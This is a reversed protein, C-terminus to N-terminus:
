ETTLALLEEISESGEYAEFGEVKDRMAIFCMRDALENGEVGSHGKVHIISLSSPLEVYCEYMKKILEANALVENKGRTWNKRQWGAAWQTMAKVSYSSDSLIQVKFGEALLDKALLMAQHLANLEATNNTGKHYLGHYKARIHGSQYVIVGSAAPGPNPDCGGDCFIHIDFSKDLVFAPRQKAPKRSKSSVISKEPAQKFAAEALVRSEFGKFKAGKHGAVAAQATPWDEFIGTQRGEWVVYYKKAV